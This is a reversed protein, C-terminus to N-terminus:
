LLFRTAAMLLIPLLILLWLYAAKSQTKVEVGFAAAEKKKEEEQRKHDEQVIEKIAWELM